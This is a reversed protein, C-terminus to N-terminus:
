AGTLIWLASQGAAYCDDSSPLCTIDGLGTNETGSQPTAVLEWAGDTYHEIVPQSFLAPDPSPTPTPGIFAPLAQFAAQTSGVAWCDDSSVCAIGSLVAGNPGSVSPSSVPTWGTGDYHAILPQTLQNPVTPYGTSGVAWCDTPSTCAVRGVGSQSFGPSPALLPASVVSWSSGDFEEVVGGDPTGASAWCEDPGFCSVAGLGGYDILPGALTAVTWGSGDYHELLPHLIGDGGNESNAAYTGAAWCDDAGACTISGLGDADGPVVPGSVPAFGSGTDHEILPKTVGDSDSPPVTQHQGVAWCDDATVCTLGELAGSGVGAIPVSTWAGGSYRWIATASPEGAAGWGIVLCDATSVCSIGDASFGAPLGVPQWDDPVAAGTPASGGSPGPGSGPGSSGRGALHVAVAVGAVALVAAIVGASGALRLATSRRSRSRGGAPGHPEDAM